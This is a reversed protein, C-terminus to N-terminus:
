KAKGKTKRKGAASGRKRPRPERVKCPKRLTRLVGYLEESKRNVNVGVRLEVLLPPPM